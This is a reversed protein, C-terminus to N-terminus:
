KIAISEKTEFYAGECNEMLPKLKIKDVDFIIDLGLSEKILMANQYNTKITAKLTEVPLLNIDTIVISKNEKQTISYLETKHNFNGSKNLVGYSKVALLINFKVKEKLIEDKKDQQKLKEIIKKRNDISNNCLEIINVYDNIKENVENRNIFLQNEIDETLEEEELYSKIYDYEKFIQYLPKM